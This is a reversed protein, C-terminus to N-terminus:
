KQDYGKQCKLAHAQIKVRGQCTVLAAVQQLEKPIDLVACFHHQVAPIYVDDRVVLFLLSVRDGVADDVVVERNSHYSSM